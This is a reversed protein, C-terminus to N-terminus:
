KRALHGRWTNPDNGQCNFDGTGLSEMWTCLHKLVLAKKNQKTKDHLDKSQTGM